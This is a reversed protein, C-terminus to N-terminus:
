LPCIQNGIKNNEAQTIVVLNWPLHPGGKSVPWKHHVHFATSGAEQNRDACDAYINDIMLQEITTAVM